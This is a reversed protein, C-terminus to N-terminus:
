AESKRLHRGERGGKRGPHSYRSGAFNSDAKDVCHLPLSHSIQPNQGLPTLENARM